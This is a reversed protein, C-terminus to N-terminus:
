KGINQDKDIKQDVLEGDEEEEDDLLAEMKSNINKMLIESVNKQPRLHDPLEALSLIKPHQNFKVSNNPSQNSNINTQSDNTGESYHSHHHTHQTSTSIKKIM